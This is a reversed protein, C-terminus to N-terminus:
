YLQRGCNSMRSKNSSNSLISGRERDRNNENNSLNNHGPAQLNIVENSKMQQPINSFVFNTESKKENQNSLNDNNNNTSLAPSINNNKQSNELEQTKKLLNKATM